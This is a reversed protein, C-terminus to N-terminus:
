SDVRHGRSRRRRGTVPEAEGAPRRFASDNYGQGAGDEHDDSFHGDAGSQADEYGDDYAAGEAYDDYSTEDEYAMGDDYVAAEDYPLSADAYEGGDYGDAGDDYDDEAADYTDSEGYFEPEDAYDAEKGYDVGDDYPQAGAADSAEEAKEPEATKKQAEEAPAQTAPSTTALEEDYLGGRIASYDEEGEAPATHSASRAYKMHPLELDEQDDEDLANSEVTVNEEEAQEPEEEEAPTIYDRRKARELQDIASKSAKRQDARRKTAILLLVCSAVLLLGALILVPLLISQITKPVTVM